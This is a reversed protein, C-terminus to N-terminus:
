FTEGDWILVQPAVIINHKKIYEQPIYATSDTVLAIKTM